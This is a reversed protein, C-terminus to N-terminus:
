RRVAYIRRPKAGKARARLMEVGARIAYEAKGRSRQFLKAIAVKGIDMQYNSLYKEKIAKARERIIADDSASMEELWKKIKRSQKEKRVLRRCKEVDNPDEYSPHWVDAEGIPLRNEMRKKEWKVKRWIVNKARRLRDLEEFMPRPEFTLQDMAADQVLDDPNALHAYGYWSIWRYADLAIRYLKKLEIM